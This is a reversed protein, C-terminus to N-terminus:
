QGSAIRLSTLHDLDFAHGINEGLSRIFHLFANTYSEGLYTDRWHELDHGWYLVADGTKLNIPNGDIYLPWDKDGDLHISVSIECAERDRHKALNTNSFYTRVFSYTPLLNVGLIDALSSAKYVALQTTPLFNYMSVSGPVQTDHGAELERSADVWQNLLLSVEDTSIFDKLHIFGSSRLDSYKQLNETKM